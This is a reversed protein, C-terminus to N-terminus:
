IYERGGWWYIWVFLFLWVVDVFHWYWAAAEFGFHHVKSFRCKVLRVFIALLFSTGVIVHLGHFGTAIFFTSGYASDSFTFPAEIYELLQVFTFYIGLVITILLSQISESLNGVIIAHHSWTVRIGSSLLIITNLLPVSFPNFPQIGVPPWQAGVEVNPSLSSHFFAWFFSSFFMVESVIFLVIGWRIGTEVIKTHLGQFTRERSIDRWWQFRVLILSAISLLILSTDKLYFWIIFGSTLGLASVRSLIPWPSIDVLHYPHCISNSMFEPATEVVGVKSCSIEHSLSPRYSSREVLINM